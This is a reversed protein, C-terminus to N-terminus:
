KVKRVSVTTKVEVLGDFKYVAIKRDHHFYGNKPDFGWRLDDDDNTPRNYQFYVEKPYEKEKMKEGEEILKLNDQNIPWFNYNYKQMEDWRVWLASFIEDVTGRAGKYVWPTEEIAEVRDGKKFRTM